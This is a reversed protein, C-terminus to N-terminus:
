LTASFKLSFQDSFILFTITTTLELSHKSVFFFIKGHDSCLILHLMQCSFRQDSDLVLKSCKVLSHELTPLYMPPAFDCSLFLFGGPKVVWLPQVGTASPSESVTSTRPCCNCTVPHFFCGLVWCNPLETVERDTLSRQGLLQTARRDRQRDLVEAERV